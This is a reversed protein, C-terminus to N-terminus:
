TLKGSPLVPIEQSIMPHDHDLLTERLEDLLGHRRTVVLAAGHHRSPIGWSKLVEM